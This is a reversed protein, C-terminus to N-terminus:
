SEGVCSSFMLAGAVSTVLHRRVVPFLCSVKGVNGVEGTVIGAYTTMTRLEELAGLRDNAGTAMRLHRGPVIRTERKAVGNSRALKQDLKRVVLM